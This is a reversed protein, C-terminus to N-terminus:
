PLVDIPMMRLANTISSSPRMTCASYLTLGSAVAGPASAASAELPYIGIGGSSPTRTRSRERMRAPGYQEIISASRPASTTLTSRGPPPSGVRLQPGGKTSPSDVYKRQAFRPLREIQMSRWSGSPTASTRRRASRASMTISFKRGPAARGGRVRSRRAARTAPAREDVARDGAVRVVSRIRAPGAEVERDLALAPDHRDRALGVAVRHLDAHRDGVDGRADVRGDPHEGGEALGVAVPTPLWTWTDSNSAWSAHSAFRADSWRTAPSVGSRSPLACGAITGYSLKRASSPWTITAIPVSACNARKQRSAESASSRSSGRTRSSGRGRGGDRRASARARALRDRPTRDGCQSSSISRAPTGPPGTRVIGSTKACAGNAVCVCSCAVSPGIRVTREGIPMSPARRSPLRGM